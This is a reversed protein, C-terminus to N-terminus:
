ITCYNNIIFLNNFGAIVIFVNKKPSAAATSADRDEHAARAELARSEEVLQSHCDVDEQCLRGQVAFTYTFMLTYNSLLESIYEFYFGLMELM